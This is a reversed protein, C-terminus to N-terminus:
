LLFGLSQKVSVAGSALPRAATREVKRDLDRDWLDNIVCGAARMVVAGICFLVVLCVGGFGVDLVGGSAVVISWLGPLLLLWVGIPRDMRALYFYPRYRAPVRDLILGNEKIDSHPKTNLTDTM